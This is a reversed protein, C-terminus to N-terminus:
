MDISGSRVLVDRRARSPRVVRRSVTVVHSQPRDRGHGEESLPCRAVQEPQWTAITVEAQGATSMTQV